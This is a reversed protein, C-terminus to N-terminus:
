FYIVDGMDPNEDKYQLLLQVYEDKLEKPVNSDLYFNKDTSYKKIEKGIEEIKEKTTMKYIEMM